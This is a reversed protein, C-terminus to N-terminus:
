FECDSILPGDAAGEWDPDAIGTWMKTESDFAVLHVRSFAGYKKVVKVNFGVQKWRISDSGM